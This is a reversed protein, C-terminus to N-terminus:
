KLKITKDCIGEIRLDSYRSNMKFTNNNQSFSINLSTREGTKRLWGGTGIITGANGKRIKFKASKEINEIKFLIHFSSIRKEISWEAYHIGNDFSYVGRCFIKEKQFEESFVLKYLFFQLIIILIINQIIKIAPKEM